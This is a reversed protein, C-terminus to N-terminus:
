VCDIEHLSEFHLLKYRIVGYQLQVIGCTTRFRLDLAASEVPCLAVPDAKCYARNEGNGAKGLVCDTQFLDELVFRRVCGRLERFRYTLAPLSFGCTSIPSIRFPVPM